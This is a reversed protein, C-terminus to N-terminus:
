DEPEEEPVEPMFQMRSRLRTLPPSVRTGELQRRSRPTTEPIYTPDARYDTPPLQPSPGPSPTELIQRQERVPTQQQRPRNEEQPIELLPGPLMEEPEVEEEVQERRKGRRSKGDKEPTTWGEVNYAKKLRNVHVTMPKGKRDEIVYILPSQRKDVKYPGSWPKRFKASRGPKVVPIYLFVYDGSEFTRERASRDYYRKNAAHAKDSHQRAMKYAMRLNRKLNELRPAHDTERIEPSLKAKLHQVSPLVMERGFLMYFPTYRITGHPINRFAMLYFPTLVDWNNACANVFHTLGECLSRNLRETKSNGMPNYATTFMQKVGLIKCTERFFASTFNAGRDSILNKTAGHRAVIHTAYARACSEATQSELPIAEPYLTLHDIFVLLYRNKNATLPLPGLIDMGVTDFAGAPKAMGGMPAKFDHRPKVHQCEICNRVYEEVDKRMGPWYFRVCLLDLTRNRGPHAVFVPDHNLRIVEQVM